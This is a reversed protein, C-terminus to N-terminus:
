NLEGVMYYINNDGSVFSLVAHTENADISVETGSAGPVGEIDQLRSTPGMTMVSSRPKGARWWIGDGAKHVELSGKSNLAVSPYLSGSEDIPFPYTLTDITGPVVWDIKRGNEDVTGIQCWLYGNSSNHAEFFLDGYVAVTPRVGTNYKRYDNGLGHWTISLDSYNLTGFNYWLNNDGGEHVEVVVNNENMAVWPHRGPDYYHADGWSVTYSWGSGDGADLTGCRYYLNGDDNSHIEVVINEDTLVVSPNQGNSDYRTDGMMWTISGGAIYGASYYLHDYNQSKHVEVVYGLNNIAVDPNSGKGPSAPLYWKVKGFGFDPMVNLEHMYRAYWGFYPFNTAPLNLGNWAGNPDQWKCDDNTVEWLRVFHQGEYEKAWDCSGNESAARAYFLEGDSVKTNGHQYEVFMNAVPPSGTDPCQSDNFCYNRSYYQRIDENGSLVVMIRGAYEFIPQQRDFDKPLLIQGPLYPAYPNHPDVLFDNLAKLTVAAESEGKWDNKWDLALVVPERQQNWYVWNSVWQVWSPFYDSSPNGNSTDVQDGPFDHGVRFTVVDDDISYHIDLEVFRLGADLQQWLSGRYGEDLNGSYSNHSARYHAELFTLPEEGV